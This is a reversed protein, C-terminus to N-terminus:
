VDTLLEQGIQHSFRVFKNLQGYITVDVVKTGLLVCKLVIQSCVKSLERVSEFEEKKFHHDDLCLTQSKTCSSDKKRWNEIDRLANKLMNKWTTHGRSLKQTFNERGPLKETAGASIRSEFMNETKM